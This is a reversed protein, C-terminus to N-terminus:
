LLNNNSASVLANCGHYLNARTNDTIYYSIQTYYIGTKIRSDKLNEFSSTRFHRRTPTSKKFM